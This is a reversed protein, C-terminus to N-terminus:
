GGGSAEEGAPETPALAMMADKDTHCGVCGSEEISVAALVEPEPETEDLGDSTEDASDDGADEVTGEDETDDADATDSDPTTDVEAVETADDTDLADPTTDAVVEAGSDDGDESGGCTALSFVVGISLAMLLLLGRWKLGTRM